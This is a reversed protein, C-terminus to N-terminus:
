HVAILYSNFPIRSSVLYCDVVSSVRSNWGSVDTEAAEGGALSGIDRGLPYLKLDRCVVAGQISDLVPAKDRRLELDEM